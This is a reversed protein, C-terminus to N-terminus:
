LPLLHRQPWCKNELLKISLDISYWGMYQGSYVTDLCSNMCSFPNSISNAQKGNVFKHFPVRFLRLINVVEVKINDWRAIRIAIFVCPYSKRSTKITKLNSISCFMKPHLGVTSSFECQCCQDLTDGQFEEWKCHAQLNSQYLYSGCNPTGSPPTQRWGM